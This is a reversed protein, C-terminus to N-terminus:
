YNTHVENNGMVNNRFEPGLEDMSNEINYRSLSDLILSFDPIM